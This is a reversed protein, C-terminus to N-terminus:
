NPDTTRRAVEILRLLQPLESAKRWALCVEARLEPADLNVFSVGELSLVRAGAPVIAPGVGVAVLGCITHVQTAEQGFRPTVGAGRFAAEIRERFGAPHGRPYGVLAEDCLEAVGLEVRSCLPHTAPLAVVFSERLLQLTSLRADSVPPRLIGADVRGEVLADVQDAITMERIDVDIGPHALRFARLLRPMVSYAASNIFAVSLRGASGAHAATAVAVAKDAAELVIRAEGLLAEGARTLAVGKPRRNFLDFGLAQEFRRIQQSLPPQAINLRVAAQTFSREEAVALFYRLHRLEVSYRERRM